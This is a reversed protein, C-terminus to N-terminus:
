GTGTVFLRIETGASQQLRQMRELRLSGSGSSAANEEYTRLIM